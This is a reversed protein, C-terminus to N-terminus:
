NSPLSSAAASQAAMIRDAEALFGAWSRGTEKWSVRIGEDIFEATLKVIQPIDTWNDKRAHSICVLGACSLLNVMNGYSMGGESDSGGIEELVERFDSFEIDDLGEGFTGETLECVAQRAEDCCTGERRWTGRIASREVVLLLSFFFWEVGEKALRQVIYDNVFGSVALPPDEWDNECPTAM